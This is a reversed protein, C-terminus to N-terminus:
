YASRDSDKTMLRPRECNPQPDFGFSGKYVFDRGSMAAAGQFEDFPSLSMDRRPLQVTKNVLKYTHPSDCRNSTYFELGEMELWSGVQCRMDALFTRLRGLSEVVLCGNVGNYICTASLVSSDRSLAVVDGNDTGIPGISACFGDELLLLKRWM